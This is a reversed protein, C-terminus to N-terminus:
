NGRLPPMGIGSKGIGPYGTEIEAQTKPQKKWCSFREQREWQLGVQPRHSRRLGFVPSSDVKALEGRKAEPDRELERKLLAEARESHSTSVPFGFGAFLAFREPCRSSM